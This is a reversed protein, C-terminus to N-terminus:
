TFSAFAQDATMPDGWTGIYSKRAIAYPISTKQSTLYVDRGESSITLYDCGLMKLNQPTTTTLPYCEVCDNAHVKSVICRHFGGQTPVFIMDYRKLQDVAAKKSKSNHIFAGWAKVQRLNMVQQKEKIRGLSDLVSRVSDSFAEGFEHHILSSIIVRVSKIASSQEQERLYYRIEKLTKLAETIDLENKKASKAIKRLSYIAKNNDM